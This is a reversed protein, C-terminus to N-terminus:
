AHVSVSWLTLGGKARCQDLMKTEVFSRTEINVKVRGSLVKGIFGVEVDFLEDGEFIGHLLLAQSGVPSQDIAKLPNLTKATAIRLNSQYITSM